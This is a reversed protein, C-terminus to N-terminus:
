LTRLSAYELHSFAFSQVPLCDQQFTYELQLSSLWVSRMIVLGSGLFSPIRNRSRSFLPPFTHAPLSTVFM